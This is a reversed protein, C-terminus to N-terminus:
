GRCVYVAEVDIRRRRGAQQELVIELNPLDHEELHLPAALLLAHLDSQVNADTRNPDRNALRRALADLDLQGTAM